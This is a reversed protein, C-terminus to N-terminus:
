DNQGNDLSREIKDLEAMLMGQWIPEMGVLFARICKENHRLYAEESLSERLRKVWKEPTLTEMM